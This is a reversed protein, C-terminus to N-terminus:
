HTAPAAPQGGLINQLGQQLAGGHKMWQQGIQQMMLTEQAQMEERTIKGDKNTDAMGFHQEAKALFEDKTVVGDHNMDAEDFAKSFGTSAAQSAAPPLTPSAVAPAIPATVTPAVPAVPQAVPSTSITTTVPMTNVNPTQAVPVGDGYPQQVQFPQTITTTSVPDTTVGQALASTAFLTTALCLLPRM